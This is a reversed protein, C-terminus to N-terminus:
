DSALPRRASLHWHLATHTGADNSDVWCRPTRPATRALPGRGVSCHDLAVALRLFHRLLSLEVVYSRALMPSRTVLDWWEGAQHNAPALLRSSREGFCSHHRRALLLRHWSWLLRRGRVSHRPFSLVAICLRNAHTVCDIQGALQFWIPSHSLRSSASRSDSYDGDGAGVARRGAADVNAGITRAHVM